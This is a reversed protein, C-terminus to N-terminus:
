AESRETIADQEGSEVQLVSLLQPDAVSGSRPRVDDAADIRSRSSPQGNGQRDRDSAVYSKKRRRCRLFTLLNPFRIAGLCARRENAVNPRAAISACWGSEGRDAAFHKKDGRVSDVPCEPDSVSSGAARPLDLRGFTERDTGATEVTVVDM